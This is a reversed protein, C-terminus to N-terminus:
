CIVCFQNDKSSPAGPLPVKYNSSPLFLDSSTSVPWTSEKVWALTMSM